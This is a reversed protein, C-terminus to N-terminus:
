RWGFVPIAPRGIRGPAPSALAMGLVHRMLAASPLDGYGRAPAFAAPFVPEDPALDHLLFRRLGDNDAAHQEQFAERAAENAFFSRPEAAEMVEAPVRNALDQIMAQVDKKDAGAGNALRKLAVLDHPMRENHREAPELGEIPLGLLRCFESVPDGAQTLKHFTMARLGPFVADWAEAQQLFRFHPWYEGLFREFSRSYSTVKVLEQFLSQAYDAQRRFVVVVRAEGLLDRLSAIYDRRTAWYLSRDRTRKPWGHRYLSEASLVTIDHDPVREVVARFFHRADDATLREHDGFLANVVGFHAYHRKEGILNYDPYFVGRRALAKEHHRLFKQISTTATKHTGIHLILQGM